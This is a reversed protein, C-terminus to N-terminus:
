LGEVRVAFAPTLHQLERARYWEVSTGVSLLWTHAGLETPTEVRLEGFARQEVAGSLAIWGASYEASLRLAHASHRGLPRRHSFSFRPGLIPHPSYDEDFAVAAHVGAGLAAFRSSDASQDPIHLGEIRAHARQRFLRNAAYSWGGEFGWGFAGLASQRLVEPERRLNRYSVAVFDSRVIRPLGGTSRLTLEGALTVLESAPDLGHTRRDGLQEAFAHSSLTLEAAPQGREFSTGLAVASRSYGSRTVAGERRARDSELDALRQREIWQVPDVTALQTTTLRAQRDLLESLREGAAAAEDIAWQEDAQLRRKPLRELLEMARQPRDLLAYAQEINWEREFQRLRSRAESQGDALPPANELASIKVKIARAEAADFVSRELAVSHAFYGFVAEAPGLQPALTELEAYAKRRTEPGPAEAAVHLRRLRPRLAVPTAAVIAKLERARSAVAARGLDRTSLLAGDAPELLSGGDYAKTASLADLVAAPLLPTFRPPLRVRRGDELAGDIVFAAAFACNDHLFRYDLRGRRELEWIRELLREGESPSLRLRFRRMTRQEFELMQRTVDLAPVTMVMMPYGGILGRLAYAPGPLDGGTLAVLQVAASLGPGIVRAPSRRVIRMLLHGFLSEPARGSAAVFLVEVADFTALEAWGEFRRCPGRPPLLGIAEFFRSKSFEQCRVSDSVPVDPSPVLVEEAFTVLDLSSSAQGRRRSYAFEATNLAHESFSFPREFPRIWGNLRRWQPRASWRQSDDWRQIIAHVLARQRWLRRVQSAELRELRYSARPDDDAAWDYVLFVRRGDDWEPRAGDGMGWPSRQPRWRLRLPGGPPTRLEPPLADLGSALAELVGSPWAAPEVVIGHEALRATAGAAVEPRLHHPKPRAEVAAGHAVTAAATLALWM